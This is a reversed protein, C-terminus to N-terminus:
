ELDIVKINELDFSKLESEERDLFKEFIFFAGNHNECSGEIVAHSDIQLKYVPLDQTTLYDKKDKTYVMKKFFSVEIKKMTLNQYKLFIKSQNIGNKADFCDSKKYFIEVQTNKFYSVWESKGPNLFFLVCLIYFLNM